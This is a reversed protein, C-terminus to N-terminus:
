VVIGEAAELEKMTDSMVRLLLERSEPTLGPVADMGATVGKFMIEGELQMQQVLREAVGADIAMKAVKALRDGRAELMVVWDWGAGGPRLAAEGGGEREATLVRQQLWYVQGGLMRVQQLLAEWPTIGLEDGYAHAMYIAGQARGRGRHGDHMYCLGVGEHDTAQGAGHRCQVWERKKSHGPVSKGASWQTCRLGEAGTAVEVTVYGGIDLRTVTPEEYLPQILEHQAEEWHIRQYPTMGRFVREREKEARQAWDM